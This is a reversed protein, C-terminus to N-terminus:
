SGSPSQYGRRRAEELIAETATAGVRTVGLARVRLVDDLTRIGGAAKIQISPVCEQRMLALDHDTAGLYSYMGNERRVFGYGTSTKVFAVAHSNCIECLKVKFADDTLFDNEFIVKLLGGHISTLANLLRIEDSVYAWNRSLVQGVNVVIDLEVAGDMLAREAEYLKVEMRSSGHPFGVVTGVKVDSGALVDKALLVAYPKICVSAVHYRLALKCGEILEQETLTPHLLSHDIMKAITQLSEAM